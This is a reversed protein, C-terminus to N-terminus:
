LGLFKFLAYVLFGPWFIAKIIGVVGAWFGAATSIYYIASGLFGFGYIAGGSGSSCFHKKFMLTKCNDDKCEKEIKTGISKGIEGWSPEKKSKSKSKKM